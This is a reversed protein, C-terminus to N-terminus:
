GIVRRSLDAAVQDIGFDLDVREGDRAFAIVGTGLPAVVGPAEYLPYASYDIPEGDVRHQGPGGDPAAYEMTLTRGKTDAVEVRGPNPWASLDVSAATRAQCFAEFPGAEAAEAAELVLGAHRDRVQVLWGDIHDDERIREWTYPGIIRVATYFFGLDVLLWGDREEWSVEPPLYLNVYPDAADTPIRYLVIITGEWQMMREFPSAGFLRDPYQLYPKDTAIRRGATQPLGPLFASFRRPDRYPHNCVVKARHKEGPWTLDWSVLDIPGACPGPLGVQTSGLAFSPSMWTYKRTPEPVRAIHRYVARPAKTKRVAHATSRDWAVAELLAPPRYAAALAPGVMPHDHHTEPDFGEGGFYLYQIAPTSGSRTWTNERYGERSHGGAWSGSHYELAMDAVLLTLDKRALDAVETDASWESLALMALVHCLHYQPSDYEYHGWRATRRITGLIWRRAEAAMAQRSLGNWWMEEGPWREAALLNGTYHMLWHNETNGRDLIGRTFVGSVHDLAAASLREGWRCVLSMAALLDFTGSAVRAFPGNLPRGLQTLVTDSVREAATGGEGPLDTGAEELVFLAHAAWMSHSKAALSTAIELRREEVEQRYEQERTSAM